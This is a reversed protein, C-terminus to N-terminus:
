KDMEEGEMCDSQPTKLGARKDEAYSKIDYLENAHKVGAAIARAKRTEVFVKDIATLQNRREWKEITFKKNDQNMEKM